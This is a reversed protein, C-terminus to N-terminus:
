HANLIRAQDAVIIPIGDRMPYALGAQDSILEQTNTDYRLMGRTVPCVLVDLLKPDIQPPIWSHETVNEGLIYIDYKGLPM